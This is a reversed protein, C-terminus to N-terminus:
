AIMMCTSFLLFVDHMNVLDGARGIFDEDNWTAFDALAVYWMWAHMCLCNLWTAWQRCSWRHGVCSKTECGCGGFHGHMCAHFKWCWWACFFVVAGCIVSLFGLRKKYTFNRNGRLFNWTRQLLGRRSLLIDKRWCWLWLPWCFMHGFQPVCIIWSFFSCEHLLFMWAHYLSRPECINHCHQCLASAEPAPIWRRGKKNVARFYTDVSTMMWRLLALLDRPTVEPTKDLIWFLILLDSCFRVIELILVHMIMCANQLHNVEEADPHTHILDWLWRCLASTDYGKGGFKPFDQLRPDWALKCAFLPYGICFAYWAHDTICSSSSTCKFTSLEFKVISTNVRHARRWTNFSDYANALREEINSGRWWKLHCALLVKIDFAHNLIVVVAHLVYWLINM